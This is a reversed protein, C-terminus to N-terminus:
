LPFWMWLGRSPGFSPVCVATHGGGGGGSGVVLVLSELSEDSGM